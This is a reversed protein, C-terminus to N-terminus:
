RAPAPFAEAVGDAIPLRVVFESGLGVGDSRAEVSGEHLEVLTKVLTLGLGLGDRSREVSSDVQTFMGFISSLDEPALGIGTDRVRIVALDDERDVALSIRGDKETFKSANNLLNGLLQTLRTPDADVFLPRSPLTLTLEQGMSACAPRVSEVAHRAIPELELRERRLELKGRSIRSVDLLDDVLRVVHRVQRSLMDTAMTRTREDNGHRKLLELANGIPALPNRLEHALLALFETKRRNAEVLLVTRAEARARDERAHEVEERLARERRLAHLEDVLVQTTECTSAEPDNLVADALAEHVRFLEMIDDEIGLEPHIKTWYHATRIFVLFVLLHQMTAADLTRRLTELSRGAQPTQLFVHTACAFLAEETTTGSEPLHLLPASEELLALRPELEDGRPLSRRILRIVGQITEPPCERDGSPWGLGVLFGVHRAICYRVECFRSLYVFLREKFLSPLPNDLYGFLAFGWLNSTVEPTEPALRFFNPLVGFRERVEAQLLEANTM